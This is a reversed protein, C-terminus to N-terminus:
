KSQLYDEKWEPKQMDLLLQWMNDGYCYSGKHTIGYKSLKKIQLTSPSFPTHAWGDEKDYSKPHANYWLKWLNQFPPCVYGKYRKTYEDYILYCEDFGIHEFLNVMSPNAKSPYKGAVMRMFDDENLVRQSLIEGKDNVVLEAYTHLSSNLSPMFNVGFVTKITQCENFSISSCLYFISIFIIFQRLVSDM